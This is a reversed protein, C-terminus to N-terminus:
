RQSYARVAVEQDFQALKSERDKLEAAKAELQRKLSM